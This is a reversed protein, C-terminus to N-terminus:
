LLASADPFTQQELGLSIPVFQDGHDFRDHRYILFVFTFILGLLSCCYVPSSPSLSWGSGCLSSIIFFTAVSVLLRSDDSTEGVVNKIMVSSALLPFSWVPYDSLRSSFSFRFRRVGTPETFRVNVFSGPSKSRNARSPMLFLDTFITFYLFKYAPLDSNKGDEGMTAFVPKTLYKSSTLYIITTRISFFIFMM